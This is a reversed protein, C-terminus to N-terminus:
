DRKRVCKLILGLCVMVVAVAAKALVPVSTFRVLSLGSEERVRYDTRLYERLTGYKKLIEIADKEGTKPYQQKREQIFIENHHALILPEISSETWHGGIVARFAEDIAAPDCHPFFDTPGFGPAYDGNEKLFRSKIRRRDTASMKRASASNGLLMESLQCAGDLRGFLIDNVRWAKKFFGGFAGFQQGLVKPSLDCAGIKPDIPSFRVTRIVDKSKLGSVLEAPFILGDLWEFEFYERGAPANKYQEFFESERADSEALLSVFEQGGNQPLVRKLKEVRQRLLQNFESLGDSNDDAPLSVERADLLNQFLSVVKGWLSAACEAGSCDSKNFYSEWCFDYQDLLAEMHFQVIELLKNFRNARKWITVRREREPDDLIPEGDGAPYLSQYIWYCVHSLRRRRYYIDFHTLLNPQLGESAYDEFCRIMQEAAVKAQQSAKLDRGNVRLVGRMARDSLSLLRAKWYVPGCVFRDDIKARSAKSMRRFQEVQDNHAVIERLDGAISQYRPLTTLADKATRLVNPATAPQEEAFKEPDPEIYCLYRDVQRDATRNFIAEITPSFPKNALVGGDIFFKARDLVGWRRLFRDEDNLSVAVPSFAVPFGSTLAALKGLADTVGPDNSFDSGSSGRGPRHKLKFLSRHQMVDIPHGGDDFETRADGYFDTGTVFLDLEACPAARLEREVPSDQMTGFAARLQPLYYNESDLVSDGPGRFLSPLLKNLGGSERWLESCTDFELENALAFSLFIGNIGGASTGSIIDVFIESDAIEKILGYIGRGRVAEFFELTTGNMYVALSVGGYLVLGLRVERSFQHPVESASGTMKVM